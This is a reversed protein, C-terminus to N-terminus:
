GPRPHRDIASPSKLAIRHIRAMTRRRTGRPGRTAEFIRNRDSPHTALVALSLFHDGHRLMLFSDVLPQLFAELRDHSAVAKISTKRLFRHLQDLNRARDCALYAVRQEGKLVTVSRVAAPRRDRIILRDGEDLSWLESQGHVKHWQHLAKLLPRTYEEVAQPVRYDYVFYVALNALEEESLGPYIYGYAPSARVDSLGSAAADEFLPASRGLMFSGFGTPPPLHTLLPVLRAMRDCEEPPEGPFGWIMNWIVHIDFELCWKLLQLNQLVSTGKRMLRLVPDSLSELGPTISRVGAERMGRLQAKTIAGRIDWGIAVGLNLAALKPILDRFRDMRLMSDAMGINKGSYKASLDRIERIVRATSKARYQINWGNVSCFTCPHREGWSCGRATEFIVCPPYPLDVASAALQQFYDDYDLEPLQDLEHVRATGGPPARREARTPRVHLGELGQLPEGKLFCEVAKPFAIDAEGSFVADVFPFQSLTEVAKVGECTRGGLVIFVGPLHTKVRKALALSALHQQFMSSFGLIRPDIATIRQACEEIFEPVQSRAHLVTQIFEETAPVLLHGRVRVPTRLIREVYEREDEKSQQFVARSFIWEGVQNYIGHPHEQSWRLYPGVGTRQAFRLNLYEIRTSIGRRLLGGKLLTLGLSPCDLQAFPMQILLVEPRGDSTNPSTMRRGVYIGPMDPTSVSRLDLRRGPGSV